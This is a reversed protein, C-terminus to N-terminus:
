DHTMGEAECALCRKQRGERAPAGPAEPTDRLDVVVARIAVTGDAHRTAEAIAMTGDGALDIGYAVAGDPETHCTCACRIVVDAVLDFGRGDCARHKGERCDPGIDLRRPEVDEVTVTGDDHRVVWQGPLVAVDGHEHGFIMSWGPGYGYGYTTGDESALLRMVEGPKGSLADGSPAWQVAKM